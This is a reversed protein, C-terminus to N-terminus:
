KGGVMWAMDKQMVLYKDPINVVCKNSDKYRKSYCEIVCMYIASELDAASHKVNQSYTMVEASAATEKGNEIFQNILWKDKNLFSLYHPVEVKNGKSSLNGDKDMLPVGQRSRVVYLKAVLWKLIRKDKIHSIHIKPM